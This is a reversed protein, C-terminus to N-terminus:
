QCSVQKLESGPFGPQLKNALNEQSLSVRNLVYSTMAGDHGKLGKVASKVGRLRLSDLFKNALAEDKFMGLSIAYRWPVDKVIFTDTVGLAKLEDVKAQAEEQSHKPPIYVWFRTGEHPVLQRPQAELGLSDLAAKARMVESVPFSGWEYCAAVTPSSSSVPAPQPQDLASVAKKPLAILEDPTLMKIKEPAIAEHGTLAEGGTSHGETLKFFGFVAVNLVLLGWALWKM